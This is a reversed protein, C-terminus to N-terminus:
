GATGLHAAIATELIAIIAEREEGIEAAAGSVSVVLVQGDRTPPLPLAIARSGDDASLGGFAYGQERIREVLEIIHATDGAQEGLARRCLRATALVAQDTQASLWAAGTCSGFIPVRLGISEQRMERGGRPAAGPGDHPEFVDLIQMFSGQCASVTLTRGLAHHVDAVLRGIAGPGFCADSLAAGANAARMSAHYRKTFPDFVLYASDMMTKLLQHTSSPSLGLAGAIEIARLPRGARALLEVIDLARVASKAMNGIEGRERVRAFPSLTVTENPAWVDHSPVALPWQGFPVRVPPTKRQAV